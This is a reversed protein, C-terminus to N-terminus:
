PRRSRLVPSAGRTRRAAGCRGCSPAPAAGRSSNPGRHGRSSRVNGDAGGGRRRRRPSDTAADGGGTPAARPESRGPARKQEAHPEDSEANGAQRDGPAGLSLAVSVRPGRRKGPLARLRRGLSAGRGPRPPTSWAPGGSGHDRSSAPFGGRRACAGTSASRVGPARAAAPVSSRAALHTAAPPRLFRSPVAPAPRAGAACGDVVRKPCRRPGSRFAVGAARGGSCSAVPLLSPSSTVAVGRGRPNRGPRLCVAPDSSLFRPGRPGPRRRAAGGAGGGAAPSPAAALDRPSPLAHRETVHGPREPLCDLVQKGVGKRTERFTEGAANRTSGVVCLGPFHDFPSGTRM